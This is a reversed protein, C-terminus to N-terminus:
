RGPDAPPEEGRDLTRLRAAADPGLPVVVLELALVEVAEGPRTPDPALSLVLAFGDRAFGRACRAAAARDLWFRAHEDPGLGLTAALDSPPEGQVRARMRLRGAAAPDSVRVALGVVSGGTLAAQVAPGVVRGDAARVVVHTTSTIVAADVSLATRTTRGQELQAEAMAARARAEDRARTLDDLGARLRDRERELEAQGARLGNAHLEAAALARELADREQEVLERARAAQDLAGARDAVELRASALEAGVRQLEAQLATRNADAANLAATLSMVEAVAEARALAAAEAELRAVEVDVRLLSAAEVGDVEREQAARADSLRAAREGELAGRTAEHDARGARERLVVHALTVLLLLVMAPWTWPLAQPAPPPPAAPEHARAAREAERRARASERRARAAALRDAREGDAGAAPVVPEEPERPADVM